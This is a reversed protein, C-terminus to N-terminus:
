GTRRRGATLPLPGPTLPGPAAGAPRVIKVPVAQGAPSVRPRCWVPHDTWRLWRRPGAQEVLVRTTEGLLDIEPRFSVPRASLPTPTVLVVSRPLLEDAQVIM